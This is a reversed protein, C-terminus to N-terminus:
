CGDTRGDLVGHGDHHAVRLVLPHLGEDAWAEDEELRVTGVKTCLAVLEEVLDCGFAGAPRKAAAVAAHKWVTPMAVQLDSGVGFQVLFNVVSSEQFAAGRRGVEPVGLRFHVVDEVLLRESWDRPLTVALLLTIPNHKFVAQVKRAGLLHV